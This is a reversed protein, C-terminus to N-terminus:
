RGDQFRSETMSKTTNEQIEYAHIVCYTNKKDPKKWKAYKLNWWMQPVIDM